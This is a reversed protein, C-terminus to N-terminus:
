FSPQLRCPQRQSQIKSDIWKEIDSERYRWFKGVKFGPIESLRAKREIVESCLGLIKGVQLSNLIRDM